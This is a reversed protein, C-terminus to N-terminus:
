AYVATEGLKDLLKYNAYAGVVAGIGPVMQLMKALDIYDRYQQQFTRWDFSNIDEPLEKVYSQWNAIQNYIVRSRMKDSFALQFIYLIYLRERYDSTDFGYISATDFLFKFKLGILIPFDAMGLLFGGAGTWAGSAAAAKKYFNKKDNVLKEREELTASYLPPSSVIESGFLIAKVMNKIIATIATHVKEPILKNARAQLGSIIKGSFLPKKSMRNQWNELENLAKEEYCTM